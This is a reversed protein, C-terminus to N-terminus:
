WDSACAARYAAWAREEDATRPGPARSLEHADLVDRADGLADWARRDDAHGIWVSFDAQIWSGAFVRPLAPAPAAVAVSMTVARLEPDDQLGQYLRRLFVRGGDRYHEWANEGDLILTVVPDGALKAERWRQGVR